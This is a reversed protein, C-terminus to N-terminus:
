KKMKKQFLYFYFCAVAIGVLLGVAVDTPYHVALYLRSFAFPIAWIFVWFAWRFKQRFVLFLFTCVAFSNSTHGSFFSYGKEPIIIRLHPIILENYLPRSRMVLEKTVSMILVSTFLTLLTYLLINWKNEPFFRFMVYLLLLFFPLWHLTDTIYLWFVDQSSNGWNNITILLQSDFQLLKEWM